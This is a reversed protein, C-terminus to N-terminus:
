GKIKLFDEDKVIYNVLIHNLIMHVDEVPGYEKDASPTYLPLDAIEKLKGGKFGCFAITTGGLENAFETAKVVNPSNGSASIALLLDGKKFVGKMQEIFIDEYANDNGIATILPVNDTLAIVKPRFKTFYRVFFRFDTHLHSATAASGGNGAVFLTSGNKFANIITAIISELIDIDISDFLTNIREKYSEMFETLLLKREM